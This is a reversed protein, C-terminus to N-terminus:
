DELWVRQGAAARAKEVIPRTLPDRGKDHPWHGESMNKLGDGVVADRGYGTAAERVSKTTVAKNASSHTLGYPARAPTRVPTPVRGRVPKAFLLPSALEWGVDQIMGKVGKLLEKSDGTAVAGSTGAALNKVWQYHLKVSAGAPGTVTGLLDIGREAGWQTWEAVAQRRGMAEALAAEKRAYAERVRTTHGLSERYERKAAEVRRQSEKLEQALKERELRQAQERPTEEGRARSQLWSDAKEQTERQWAARRAAEVAEAKAEAELREVAEAPDVWQGGFWIQGLAGEAYTGNQVIWPRGWADTPPMGPPLPPSAPLPPTPPAPPPAVVPPQTTPGGQPVGGAGVLKKLVLGGVLIAALIMLLEPVRGSWDGGPGSASGSNSNQGTWTVPCPSMWEPVMPDPDTRGEVRVTEGGTLFRGSMTAIPDNPDWAPTIFPIQFSDDPNWTGTLALSDGGYSWLVDFTGASTGPATASSIEMEAQGGTGSCTPLSPDVPTVQLLYTGEIDDPDLPAGASATTVAVIVVAVGAALGAAM